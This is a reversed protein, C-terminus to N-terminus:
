FLSRLKLNDFKRVCLTMQLADMTEVGILEDLVNSAATFTCREHVFQLELLKNRVIRIHAPVKVSQVTSEKFLRGFLPRKECFNKKEFFWLKKSFGNFSKFYIKIEINSFPRDGDSGPCRSGIPKYHSRKVSCLRCVTYYVTMPGSQKRPQCSFNLSKLRELISWKLNLELISSQKNFGFDKSKFNFESNTM